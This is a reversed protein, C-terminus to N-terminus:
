IRPTDALDKWLSARKIHNYVVRERCTFENLCFTMEKDKEGYRDTARHRRLFGRSYIRAFFAIYLERMVDTRESTVLIFDTKM